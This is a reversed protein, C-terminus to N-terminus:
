SCNRCGAEQALVGQDLAAFNWDVSACNQQTFNINVYTGFLLDAVREAPRMDVTRNFASLDNLLMGIRTYSTIIGATKMAELMGLHYLRDDPDVNTTALVVERLYSLVNILIQATDRFIENPTRSDCGTCRGAQCKEKDYKDWAAITLVTSQTSIKQFPDKLSGDQAFATVVPYPASIKNPNRKDAEWQRSFFYPKEADCVTAGMGDFAIEADYALVRFTQPQLCKLDQAPYYRVADRLQFYFQDLTINM